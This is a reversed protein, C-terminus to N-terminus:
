TYEGPVRGTDNGKADSEEPVWDKLVRDELVRDIRQFGQDFNQLMTDWSTIIDTVVCTARMQKQLRLLRDPSVTALAPSTTPAATMGYAVAESNTGIRPVQSILRELLDAGVQSYGKHVSRIADVVEQASASKLLYGKAGARLAEAAYQADDNGSLILVRTKPFRQSILKTAQIGNMIPMQIDILAIDPRLAAIREIAKKGNEATGVVELDAEPRLLAELGDCIVRQDDVLLIRIM